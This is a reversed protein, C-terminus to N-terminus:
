TIKEHVGRYVLSLINDMFSHIALSGLIYDSGSLHVFTKMFIESMRARSKYAAM